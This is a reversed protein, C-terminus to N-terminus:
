GLVNSIVHTLADLFSHATSRPTLLLWSEDLQNVVIVSIHHAQTRAAYDKEARRLDLPIFRDMVDYFRDGTLQLCAWGDSQLVAYASEGFTEGLKVDAHVDQTGLMVLYQNQGTWIVSGDEIPAVQNPNPPSIKLTKTFRKEFDREAGRAAAISILEFNTVESVSLGERIQSFGNLASEEVLSVV